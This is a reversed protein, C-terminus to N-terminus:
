DSKAKFRDGDNRSPTSYTAEWCKGDGNILQARIPAGVLPLQPLALLGGKGKAQLKSKGDAGSRLTVKQLGRDGPASQSYTWGTSTARWCPRGRCTGAAPATTRSVLTNGAYVCLDWSTSTSPDGFDALSTARGRNWKWALRDQTDIARNKMQLQSTGPAIPTKCGAVPGTGCLGVPIQVVQQFTPRNQWEIAPVTTVGAATHRIDEDAIQRQWSAVSANGFEATLDVAAQSLTSWLLAKCTELVGGGCYARSFPQTVPQGLLSRLDKQVHGYFGDQFSSGIHNRRNPDDVTIGLNDIPNGASADFIARVLRPWWADMIAPAQPDDYAGDDDFDRRHSGAAQWAALRDRM